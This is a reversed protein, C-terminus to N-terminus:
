IEIEKGQRTLYLGKIKLLLMKVNKGGFRLSPIETKYINRM